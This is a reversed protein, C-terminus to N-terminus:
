REDRSERVLDVALNREGYDRRMEERAQDMEACARRVAKPDRIGNVARDIAEQLADLDNQSVAAPDEATAM